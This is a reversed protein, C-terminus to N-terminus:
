HYYSYVWEIYVYKYTFTSRKQVESNYIFFYMYLMCFNFVSTMNKLSIEPTVRVVGNVGGHRTDRADPEQRCHLLGELNTM